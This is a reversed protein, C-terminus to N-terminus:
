PCCLARVISRCRGNLTLGRSPSPYSLLFLAFHCSFLLSFPTRPPSGEYVKASSLSLSRVLCLEHFTRRPTTNRCCRVLSLDHTIGSYTIICYGPLRFAPVTGFHLSSIEGLCGRACFALFTRTPLPKRHSVLLHTRQIASSVDM